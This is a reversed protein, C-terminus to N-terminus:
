RAKKLIKKLDIRIGFIGPKLEIADWLSILRNNLQLRTNTSILVNKIDSRIASIKPELLNQYKAEYTIVLWRGHKDIDGLDIGVIPQSVFSSGSFLIHQPMGIGHNASPISLPPFSLATDKPITKQYGMTLKSPVSCSALKGLTVIPTNHFNCKLSKAQTLIASQADRDLFYVSQEKGIFFFFIKDHLDSPLASRALRYIDNVFIQEEQNIRERAFLELCVFGTNFVGLIINAIDDQYESICEHLFIEITTYPTCSDPQVSSKHYIDGASEM